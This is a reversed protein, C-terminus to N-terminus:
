RGGIRALAKRMAAGLERPAADIMRKLAPRLYPQAKTGPHNVSAWPHKEGAWYLARKTKPRIIHPATGFEVPKAYTTKTGVIAVFDRGDRKADPAISGKLRGTDVPVVAVAHNFGIYSIRKMGNMLEQEIIPTAGAYKKAMANWESADVSFEM